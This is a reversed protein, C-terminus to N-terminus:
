SAPIGNRQPNKKVTCKIEKGSMVGLEKFGKGAM